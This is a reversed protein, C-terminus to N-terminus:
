GPVDPLLKQVDGVASSWGRVQPSARVPEPDSGRTVVVCEGCQDAQDRLDEEVGGRCGVGASFSQLSFMHWSPGTFFHQQVELLLFCVLLM